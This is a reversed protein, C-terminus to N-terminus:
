EQFEDDSEYNSFHVSSLQSLSICIENGVNLLDERIDNIRIDFPVFLETLVVRGNEFDPHAAAFFYRILGYLMTNSILPTTFSVVDGIAYMKGNLFCARFFSVLVFLYYYYYIFFHVIRVSISLFYLFFCDSTFVWIL